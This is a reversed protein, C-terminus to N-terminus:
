AVKPPLAIDAEVAKTWISLVHAPRIWAGFRSMYAAYAEALVCWADRDLNHLVALFRHRDRHWQRAIAAGADPYHLAEAIEPCKQVHHAGGCNRCPSDWPPPIQEDPDIAVPAELTALPRDVLGDEILRMAHDNLACEAAHYNPFSGIYQGDFTADFDKTDRNFTIVKSDTLTQM